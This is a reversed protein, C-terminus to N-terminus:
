AVSAAGRRTSRRYSELFRERAPPTPRHLSAFVARELFYGTLELGKLVDEADGSGAMNPDVLFRPLPLLRDRYPESAARSVARGTRPSVFALDDNAGTVACRDLALPFGLEALLGIEWRVYAAAWWESELVGLLAALADFLVAHPEREPLAAAIVACASQLAALRLSDDLLNAMPMATAELTFAGLHDSLRARWQVRVRNGLQLSASQRSSRGGHVLGAHRGHERTMLQLVLNNEGQPSAAVVIGEDHWEM